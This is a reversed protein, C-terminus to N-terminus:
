LNCDAPAGADNKFSGLLISIDNYGVRYTGKGIVETAHDFDAAIWPHTTDPDVPAPVPYAAKFGAILVAIDNYGVWYTGKGIVETANDADGHCQRDTGWSCPKGVAIWEAQDPGTYCEVVGGTIPGGAIDLGSPDGGGILVVGGRTGNAALTVECAESVTITCLETVALPADAGVAVDYLAGLELVIASSGLQGPADPASAPAVPTGFGAIEEPDGGTFTITGMFIGYGEAGDTSIGEKGPTAGDITGVDVSVDLAIGAVMSDGAGNLDAGDATVIITGTLDGNDRLSIAVDAMAPAAIALVLLTLLVRKM